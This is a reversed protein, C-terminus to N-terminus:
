FKKEYIPMRKGIAVTSVVLLAFVITSSEILEGILMASAIITVFPQILQVQSVRAVGGLALGKNWFFFGILQSFLALYLFGLWVNGPISLWDSPGQFWAPLSIFPLSIVLSWCIVQWGGLEKSLKGGVAYGIAASVIAGVLALDGLHLTGLGNISSYVIVLISGSFGSVWFGGSPKENSIFAGAFATALPLVGLVVGGHSAPVTQMAFASFIPFGVVVGLATITLRLWQEKSPITQKTAFLICGAVVGAVVARGLGIFLPNLFDVVYRTAPLTLGFTIVGILGFWIGKSENTM